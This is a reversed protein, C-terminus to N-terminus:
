LLVTHILTMEFEGMSPRANISPQKKQQASMQEQLQPLAKKFSCAIRCQPQSANLCQRPTRFTDQHDKTTHSNIKYRTIANAGQQAPYLLWTHWSNTRMYINVLCGPKRNTTMNSTDKYDYGFRPWTSIVTQTNEKIDHIDDALHQKSNNRRKCKYECLAICNAMPLKRRDVSMNAKNKGHGM